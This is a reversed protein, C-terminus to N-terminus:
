VCAGVVLFALQSGMNSLVLARYEGQLSALDIWHVLQQLISTEHLHSRSTAAHGDLVLQPRQEPRLGCVLQQRVLNFAFENVLRM